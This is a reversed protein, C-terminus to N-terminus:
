NAGISSSCTCQSKSVRYHNVENVKSMDLMCLNVTSGRKNYYDIFQAYHLNYSEHNRNTAWNWHQPKYAM